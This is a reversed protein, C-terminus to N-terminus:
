TTHIQYPSGSSIDGVGGSRWMYVINRQRHTDTPTFTITIAYWVSGDKCACFLGSNWLKEIEKQSFYVVVVSRGVSRGFRVNWHSSINSHYSLYRFTRMYRCLLPERDRKTGRERQGNGIRNNVVNDCHNKVYTRVLSMVRSRSLTFYVASEQHSIFFVFANGHTNIENSYFTQMTGRAITNNCESPHSLAPAHYLCRFYKYLRFHASWNNNKKQKAERQNVCVYVCMCLCRQFKGRGIAREALRGWEWPNFTFRSTSNYTIYAYTGGTLGCNEKHSVLYRLLLVM